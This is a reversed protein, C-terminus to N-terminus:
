SQQFPAEARPVRARHIDEDPREDINQILDKLFSTLILLTDRLETIQELLNILGLTPTM